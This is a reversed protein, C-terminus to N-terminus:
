NGKGVGISYFASDGDKVTIKPTWPQGNGITSDGDKMGDLTEGERLQYFLGERTPATTLKPNAANLEIEAGKEVDMTEKVIEEKVTVKSLDIVGDEGAAPVNLFETIDAGGNVVKMKAGNPKVTTAGAPVKVLVDGADMGQPVIVEVNKVSNVNPTIVFGHEADGTVVANEDGRIAPLDGARWIIQVVYPEGIAAGDADVVQHTLTYEKTRTGAWTCM